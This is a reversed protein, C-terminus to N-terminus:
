YGAKSNPRRDAFLGTGRVGQRQFRERRARKPDVKLPRYLEIRDGQQLRQKPGCSRGWVGCEGTLSWGVARLADAVTAPASLRVVAEQVQGSELSRWLVVELEAMCKKQVSFLRM